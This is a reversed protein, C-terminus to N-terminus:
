QLHNSIIKNYRECNSNLNFRKLYKKANKSKNILKKKDRSFDQLLFFLKKYDGVKFLDGLKGNLLIEKPGTPCDSSIIPVNKSQAEILVNPSGEYKSTLVFLDSSYIYNEAKNKYGLLKVSNNLKNIWYPGPNYFDKQGKSDKMIQGMFFKILKTDGNSLRKHEKPFQNLIKEVIIKM